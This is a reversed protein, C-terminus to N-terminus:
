NNSKVGIKDGKQKPPITQPKELGVRSLKEEINGMAKNEELATPVSYLFFFMTSKFM